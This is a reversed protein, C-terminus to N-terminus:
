PWAQDNAFNLYWDSHMQISKVEARSVHLVIFHAQIKIAAGLDYIIGVAYLISLMVLAM